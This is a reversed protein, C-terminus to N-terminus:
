YAKPFMDKHIFIAEGTTFATDTTMQTFVENDYTCFPLNRSLLSYEEYRPFNTNSDYNEDRIYNVYKNLIVNYKPESCLKNSHKINM